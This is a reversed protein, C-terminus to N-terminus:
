QHYYTAAYHLHGVDVDKRKQLEVQRALYEERTHAHPEIQARVNEYMTLHEQCFWGQFRQTCKQSVCGRWYCVPRGRFHIDDINPTTPQGFSKHKVCLFHEGIKSIKKTGCVFCKPWLFHPINQYSTKLMEPSYGQPKASRHVACLYVGDVCQVNKTKGCYIHYCLPRGRSNELRM